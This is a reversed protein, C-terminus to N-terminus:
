KLSARNALINFLSFYTFLVEKMIGATDKYFM